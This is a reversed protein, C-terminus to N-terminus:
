QGFKYLLAVAFIDDTKKKGAPVVSAHRISYSIKTFLSGAVQSELATVSRTVTGGKASDGVATSLDETLKTNDSINWLFALKGLIIFEDELVGSLELKSRRMGPAIELDLTVAENNMVRNGYGLTFATRYDYGSFKDTEFGALGFLYSRETFKFNSQGTVFYREATTIGSTDNNLAGLEVTNRWKEVEQEAKAKANLSSTDTNGGTKVYGLEAEGKWEAHGIAPATLTAAILGSLLIRKSM